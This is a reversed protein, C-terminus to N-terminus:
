CSLSWVCRLPDDPAQSSSHTRPRLHLFSLLFSPLPSRHNGEFVFRLSNLQNSAPLVCLFTMGHTHNIEEVPVTLPKLPLHPTLITLESASSLPSAGIKSHPMVGGFPKSSGYMCGRDNFVCRARLVVKETHCPCGTALRPTRHHSRTKDDDQLRCASM